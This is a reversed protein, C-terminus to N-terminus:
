ASYLEYTDMEMDISFETNTIVTELDSDSLSFLDADVTPSGPLTRGALDEYENAIFAASSAGAAPHTTTKPKSAAKITRNRVNTPKSVRITDNDLDDIIASKEFLEEVKAEPLMRGGRVYIREFELAEHEDKDKLYVEVEDNPPNASADELLKLRQSQVWAPYDIFKRAEPEAADSSSYQNRYNRELESKQEVIRMVHREVAVNDCVLKFWTVELEQGKRHARKAAQKAKAPTFCTEFTVVMSARTINLAVEAAYTAILVTGGPSVKFAELVDTRASHSMNGEFIFFSVKSRRLHEAILDVTGKHDTFVISAESPHDRQWGQRIRDYEALKSSVGYLRPKKDKGYKDEEGIDRPPYWEETPISELQQQWDARAKATFRFVIENKENTIEEGAEVLWPHNCAWRARIINPDFIL